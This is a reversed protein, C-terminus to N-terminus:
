PALEKVNRSHLNDCNNKSALLTIATFQTQGPLLWARIAPCCSVTQFGAQTLGCDGGSQPWKPGYIVEPMEAFHRFEPPVFGTSLSCGWFTEGWFWDRLSLATSAGDFVCLRCDVAAIKLHFSQYCEFHGLQEPVGLVVSPCNRWPAMTAQTM